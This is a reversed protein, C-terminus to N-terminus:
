IVFNISICKKLHMDEKPWRVNCENRAGRSKPFPYLKRFKSIDRMLKVGFHCNLEYELRTSNV